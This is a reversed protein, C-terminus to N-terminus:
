LFLLLFGCDLVLDINPFGFRELDKPCERYWEKENGSLIVWFTFGFVVVRFFVTVRSEEEGIRCFILM